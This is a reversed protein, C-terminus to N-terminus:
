PSSADAAETEDLPEVDTQDEDHAEATGETPMEGCLESYRGRFLGQGDSNLDRYQGAVVGRRVRNKGIIRGRFHGQEYRAALLARFRGENDIIKAFVVQNGNTEREGYVGRLKGIIHGEENMVKGKIRGNVRDDAADDVSTWRGAIFGQMCDPRDATNPLVHYAIANGQDDVPVLNARPMLPRIPLTGQFAATNIVLAPPTDVTTGLAPHMVVELLLGDVHPLTHSVLEITSYDTRPRVIFDNDEFGLVRKVRLGANEATITGSWDTPASVEFPNGRLLGWAVLVKVRRPRILTGDELDAEADDATVDDVDEGDDNLDAENAIEEDDFDPAEDEETLGGYEEGIAFGVDDTGGEPGNNSGLGGCAALGLTLTAILLKRATNTTQM